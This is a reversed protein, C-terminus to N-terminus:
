LLLFRVALAMNAPGPKTLMDLTWANLSHLVCSRLLVAKECLVLFVDVTM